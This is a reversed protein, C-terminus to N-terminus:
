ESPALNIALHRSPLRTVDLFRQKDYSYCTGYRYDVVLGLQEHLDLGLLIPTPTGVMHIAVPENDLSEVPLTVLSGAPEREGDAFTFEVNSDGVEFDTARQSVYMEQLYTLQEVGGASRTAGGDLVGYGKCAEMNFALMEDIQEVRDELMQNRIEDQLQEATPPLQLPPAIASGDSM